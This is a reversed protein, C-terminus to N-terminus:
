NHSGVHDAIGTSPNWYGTPVRPVKARFSSRRSPSASPNRCTAETVAKSTTLGSTTLSELQLIGTDRQFEPCKRSTADDTPIVRTAIKQAIGESKAISPYEDTGFAHFTVRTLTITSADLFRVTALTHFDNNTHYHLRYALMDDGISPIFDQEHDRLDVSAGNRQQIVTYNLGSWRANELSNYQVAACVIGASSDVNM